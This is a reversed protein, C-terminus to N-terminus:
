RTLGAAAVGRYAYGLKAYVGADPASWADASVSLLENGEAVAVWRLVGPRGPWRGPGPHRTV